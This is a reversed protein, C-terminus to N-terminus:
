QVKRQTRDLYACEIFNKEKNNDIEGYELPSQGYIEEYCKESVCRNICNIALEQKIAPCADRYCKERASKISNEKYSGKLNTYNLLFILLILSIFNISKM